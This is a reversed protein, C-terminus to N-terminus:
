SFMAEYTEIATDQMLTIVILHMHNDIKRAYMYQRMQIGSYNTTFAARTYTHKGLKVEAREGVTVEFASQTTYQEEFADFYAAESISANSTLKLNEYVVSINDGTVSNTAMMDYVTVMTTAAEEFANQDLVEASLNMLEAIEDDSSYTWDSPKTFTLDAYESTFRDGEIVGHTVAKNKQEGISTAIDQMGCASFSVLLALVVLVSLIKKM